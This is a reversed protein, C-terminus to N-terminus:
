QDLPIYRYTEARQAIQANLRAVEEGDGRLVLILLCKNDMHIHNYNIIIKKSQELIDEIAGTDRALALTVGFCTHGDSEHTKAYAMYNQLAESIVQSRTVGLEQSLRDLFEAVERPLSVGFRRM